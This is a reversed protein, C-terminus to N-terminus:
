LAGVRGGYEGGIAGSMKLGVLDVKRGVEEM